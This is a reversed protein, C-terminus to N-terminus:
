TADSAGKRPAVALRLGFAALVRDLTHLTPNGDPALARYLAERNLGCRRALAAMGGIDAAAARLVFPLALPASANALDATREAINERAAIGTGRPSRIIPLPRPRYQRRQRRRRHPIGM